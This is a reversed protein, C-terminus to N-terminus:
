TSYKVDSRKKINVKKKADHLERKQPLFPMVDDERMTPPVFAKGPEHGHCASTNFSSLSM